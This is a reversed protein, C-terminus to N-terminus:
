TTQDLATAQRSRANRLCRPYESMCPECKLRTLPALISTMERSQRECIPCWRSARPISGRAQAIPYDSGGERSPAAWHQRGDLDGSQLGEAVMAQELFFAPEALLEGEVDVRRQIRSRRVPVVSQICRDTVIGHHVGGHAEGALHFILRQFREPLSYRDAQQSAECQDVSDAHADGFEAGWNRM